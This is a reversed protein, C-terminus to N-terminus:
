CLQDFSVEFLLWFPWFFIVITLDFLVSLDDIVENAEWIRFIDVSPVENNEPEFMWFSAFVSEVHTFNSARIVIRLLCWSDIHESLISSEAGIWLEIVSNAKRDRVMVWLRPVWNPLNVLDDNTKDGEPQGVLVGPSISLVVVSPRFVTEILGLLDESVCVLRDLVDLVELLEVDELVVSLMNTHVLSLM